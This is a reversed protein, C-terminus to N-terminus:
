SRIEVVPVWILYRKVTLSRVVQLAASHSLTIISSGETKGYSTNPAFDERAKESSVLLIQQQFSTELFSSVKVKVMMSQLPQLVFSFLRGALADSGQSFPKGTV